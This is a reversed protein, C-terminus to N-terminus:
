LNLCVSYNKPVLDRDARGCGLYNRDLLLVSKIRDSSVIEDAAPLCENIFFRIFLSHTNSKIVTLSVLVSSRANCLLCWGCMVCRVIILLDTLRARRLSVTWTM